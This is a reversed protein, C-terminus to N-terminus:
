LIIDVQIKNKRVMPRRATQTYVSPFRDDRNHEEVFQKRVYYSAYQDKGSQKIGTRFSLHPAFGSWYYYRQKFLLPKALTMAQRIM